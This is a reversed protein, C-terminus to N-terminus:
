RLTDTIVEFKEAYLHHRFKRLGFVVALNEKETTTYRPEAGKLKRSAFGIPLWGKKESEWQLLAAGLGYKSADTCLRKRTGPRAPVLFLPDALVSRLKQFAVRQERAWRVEWDAVRIIDRKKKRKNWPTGELVEYLPASLDALHDIHTRFFQM